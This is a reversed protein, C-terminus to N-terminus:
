SGVREQLGADRVIPPQGAAGKEVGSRMQELAMNQQSLQYQLQQLDVRLSRVENELEPNRIQGHIIQAMKQQHHMLMAIIPIMLATM